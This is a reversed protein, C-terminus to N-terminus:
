LQPRRVLGHCEKHGAQIASIPPLGLLQMKRLGSVYHSTSHTRILDKKSTKKTSPIVFRGHTHHHFPLPVKPVVDDEHVVRTAHPVYKKFTRAFQKDVMPPSGYTFVKVHPKHLNRTYHKSFVYDLALFSVCGGLSHGVFTISPTDPMHASCIYDHVERQLSYSYEWYGLHVNGLPEMLSHQKESTRFPVLAIKVNPVIDHLSDSGRYSIILEDQLRFCWAQANPAHSHFFSADRIGLRRMFNPDQTDSYAMRAFVAYKVLADYPFTTFDM